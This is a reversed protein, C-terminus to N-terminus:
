RGHRDRRRVEEDYEDITCDLSDRTTPDLTAARTRRLAALDRMLELYGKKCVAADVVASQRESFREPTM